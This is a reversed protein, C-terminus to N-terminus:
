DIGGSVFISSERRHAAYKEVLEHWSRPMKGGARCEICYKLYYTPLVDRMQGNAMLLLTPLTDSYLGFCGSLVSMVWFNLPYSRASFLKAEAGIKTM